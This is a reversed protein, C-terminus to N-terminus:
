NWVKKLKGAADYEVSGDKRTGSVYVRFSVDNNFPRGRKLIVHTVKGDDIKLQVTADKVMRPLGALDVAALDVVAEDLDKASPTTGVFKVPEGDGVAGDRLEYEDVNGHKKPDQIQAAVHDPYVHLELVHVPGGIKTKFAAPIGAADQLYGGAPAPADALARKGHKSPKAAEAAPADPLPNDKSKGCGLAAAVVLVAAVALVVALFLAAIRSALAHM